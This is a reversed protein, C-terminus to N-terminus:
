KKIGKKLWEGIPLQALVVAVFIIICGFIEKEAMREQLFIIGGLVSFVSELSLLLSALTPPVSQQGVTQLTYAIGSCFIGAFLVALWTEWHTFAQGWAVPDGVMEAFIMPVASLTGCVLFQICSLRVPDVKAVYHDITLIQVAFCVSCLLLLLDSPVLSFDENVCLFYLGLVTVVVCVWIHWPCKKHLFLGFLPVLIIYCSTLFGGKGASTGLSLGLQQLNCAFFLAAGCAIGAMWLTKKDEKTAPFQVTSQPRPLYIVPLLVLCGLFSRICNFSYSGLFQGGIKQTIFGIGFILSTFFLCLSGFWIKESSKNM